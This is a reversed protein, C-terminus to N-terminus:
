SRQYMLLPVLISNLSTDLYQFILPCSVGSHVFSQELFCVHTCHELLSYLARVSFNIFTALPVILLSLSSSFLCTLLTSSKTILPRPALKPTTTPLILITVFSFWSPTFLFSIRTTLSYKEPISDRM